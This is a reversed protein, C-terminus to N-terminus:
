HKVIALDEGNWLIALAKAVEKYTLPGNDQHWEVAGVRVTQGCTVRFYFREQKLPEGVVPLDGVHQLEVFLMKDGVEFSDEYAVFFTDPLQTAIFM